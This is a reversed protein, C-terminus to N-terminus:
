EKGMEEYLSWISNEEEYEEGKIMGERIMGADDIKMTAEKVEGNVYIKATFELAITSEPIYTMFPVTKIEEEM